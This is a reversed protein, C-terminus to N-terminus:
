VIRWAQRLCVSAESYKEMWCSGALRLRVLDKLENGESDPDM